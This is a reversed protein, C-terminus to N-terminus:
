AVMTLASDDTTHASAIQTRLAKLAAARMESFSTPFPQTMDRLVDLPVRARIAVTAQQM